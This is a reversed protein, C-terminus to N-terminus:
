TLIVHSFGDERVLAPNLQVPYMYKFFYKKFSYMYNDYVIM